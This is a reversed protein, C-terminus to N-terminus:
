KISFGIICFCFIRCLTQFDVLALFDGCLSIVAVLVAGVLIILVDHRFAPLLVIVLFFFGLRGVFGRFIFFGFFLRVM